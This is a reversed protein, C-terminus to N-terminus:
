VICSLLAKSVWDWNEGALKRHHQLPARSRDSIAARVAEDRINVLSRGTRRSILERNRSTELLFLFDHM